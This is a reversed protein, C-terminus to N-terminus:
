NLMSLSIDSRCVSVIISLMSFMTLMAWHCTLLLSVILDFASSLDHFVVGFVLWSATEAEWAATKDNEWSDDGNGGAERQHEDWDVQHDVWICIMPDTISYLWPQSFIPFICLHTSTIGASISLCVWIFEWWYLIHATLYKTMAPQPCQLTM